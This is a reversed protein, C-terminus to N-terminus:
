GLPIEGVMAANWKKVHERRNKIYYRRTPIKKANFTNAIQKDNMGRRRLQILANRMFEDGPYSAKDKKGAEIKRVLDERAEGQIFEADDIQQKLTDNFKVDMIFHVRETSGNVVGHRSGNDFSWAHGPAFHQAYGDSILRARSNSQIPFHIRYMDAWKAMMDRHAQTLGNPEMRFLFGYHAGGFPGDAAMLSKIYPLSDLLPSDAVDDAFFDHETGNQGGRLLLMGVSCHITGWYSAMWAHEPISAYEQQLRPLDVPVAFRLFSRKGYGEPLQPSSGAQSGDANYM